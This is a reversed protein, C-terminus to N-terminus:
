TYRYGVRRRKLEPLIRKIIVTFPSKSKDGYRNEILRVIHPLIDSLRNFKKDQEACVEPVSGAHTLGVEAVEALTQLDPLSNVRKRDRKSLQIGSTSPTNEAINIIKVPVNSIIMPLHRKEGMEKRDQEVERDRSEERGTVNELVLADRSRKRVNISEVEYDMKEEPDDQQTVFAIIDECKALLKLNASEKTEPESKECGEFM